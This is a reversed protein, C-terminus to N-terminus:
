GGGSAEMVYVVTQAWHPAKIVVDRFGASAMADLVASEALLSHSETELTAQQHQLNVSVAKVGDIATLLAQVQAANHATLQNVTVVYHDLESRELTRGPGSDTAGQCSVLNGSIVAALLGLGIRIKGIM